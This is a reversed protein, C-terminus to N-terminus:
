WRALELEEDEFENSISLEINSIRVSKKNVRAGVKIDFFIEANMIKVYEVAIRARNKEVQQASVKNSYANLLCVFVLVLYVRYFKLQNRM